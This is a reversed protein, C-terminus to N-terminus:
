KRVAEVAYYRPTFLRLLPRIGIRRVPSNWQESRVITWGAKELLWDFQWPEFEHFHRDRPDRPNNYAKTFWLDLPVTVFLHKAEIAQLVGLPNLLHELIEFATVVDVEQAAVEEPTDDLDSQTNSVEFGEKRMITAFPNDEGLDLIRAPPELGQKLFNLTRQYRLKLAPNSASYEAVSM